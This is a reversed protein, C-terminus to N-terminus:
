LETTLWFEYILASTFFIVALSVHISGFGEDFLGILPLSVCSILGLIMMTDNSSTSIIGDMTKYVARINM